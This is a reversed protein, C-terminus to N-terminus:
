GLALNKLREWCGLCTHLQLGPAHANSQRDSTGYDFEVVTRDLYVSQFLLPACSQGDQGSPHWEM